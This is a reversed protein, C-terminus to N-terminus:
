RRYTSYGADPLGTGGAQQFLRLERATMDDGESWWWDASPLRMGSLDQIRGRHWDALQRCEVHHDSGPPSRDSAWSGWIQARVDHHNILARVNQREPTRVLVETTLWMLSGCIAVAIMLRLVSIRPYIRRM